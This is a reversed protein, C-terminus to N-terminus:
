DVEGRSDAFRDFAPPWIAVVFTLLVFEFWM